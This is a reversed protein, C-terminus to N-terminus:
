ITTIPSRNAWAWSSSIASLIEDEDENDEENQNMSYRMKMRRSTHHTIRSRFNRDKGKWRWSRSWLKRWRWIERGGKWDVRAFSAAMPAVSRRRFACRTGTVQKVM